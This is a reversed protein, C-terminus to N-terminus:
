RSHWRQRLGTGLSCVHLDISPLLVLMNSYNEARASQFNIFVTKRYVTVRNKVKRSTNTQPIKQLMIKLINLIETM